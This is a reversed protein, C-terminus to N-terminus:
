SNLDALDGGHLATAKRQAYGDSRGIRSRENVVGRRDLLRLSVIAPCHHGTADCKARVSNVRHRGRSHSTCM